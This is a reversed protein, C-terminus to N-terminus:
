QKVGKLAFQPGILRAKTILSRAAGDMMVYPNKYALRFVRAAGIRAADFKVKGNSELNFTYTGNELHNITVDPQNRIVADICRIVDCLWYPAIPHDGAADREFSELRVFQFAAADIEEFLQKARDSLLLVERVFPNVDWPPRGIRRDIILPEPRYDLPFGTGFPEEVYGARPPPPHPGAPIDHSTYLPGRYDPHTEEADFPITGWYFGRPKAASGGIPSMTYLFDSKVVGKPKRTGPMAVEGQKRM